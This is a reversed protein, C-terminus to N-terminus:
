GADDLGDLESLAIPAWTTGGAGAGVDEATVGGEEAPSPSPEIGAAALRPWLPALAAAPDAEFDSQRIRWFPWGARRLQRERAFDHAVQEPTGADEGDCEVALRARGGTVVLDIRRGNVEVQPLVRYGALTLERFVRQEFLSDFRPHAIDPAVEALRPPTALEPLEHGRALVYSLYSHRLDAPDLQDLEVSHFLWVQDRARSAAVNFRRQYEQRRLPTAAAQPTVVMSLFVVDREDGQFDPPTGVRLRRRHQEAVSMRAALLSRLLEAQGSGQLVVVGFSRGEYAPDAACALVQSVLAEAEAPNRLDAGEGTTYAHPVYRARLPPLRETGFQRLPILPADRYFMASSWEIIEPMCRFHERLRVVEGFRTRLLSFLSTRPTFAVRLWGPVDPLLADLRRFVGSLDDAEADDDEPGLLSRGPRDIGGTLDTGGTLDALTRLNALEALEAASVEDAAAVAERPAPSDAPAAPEPIAPTCQRDDGVIIVRPALWLLFLSDLGAQSGEDVIVVDFSDRVPPITSLVDAIPMVWAPVATQAVAMAERAAQRYREAHRGSARGGAAVADAYARLAASERTGMRELCHRWARAGALEATAALVADEAADLQADLDGSPGGAGATGPAADTDAAQQRELWGTALGWSWAQPFRSLRARWAADASAAGDPSAAARRAAAVLADALVPHARRLRDLLEARRVAAQRDALTRVLERRAQRYADVDRDALTGALRRLEAPAPTGPASAAASLQARLREVDGRAAAAVRRLRALGLANVLEGLAATSSLDLDLDGGLAGPRFGGVAARVRDRAALVGGVTRLAETAEALRALRHEPAAGPEALRVGALAWASAAAELAVEARLRTLVLDLLQPTTPAQGDVTASTLLEQAARQAKPRFTRRLGGGAALHDRLAEGAALLRAAPSSAAPAPEDAEPETPPLPTPPLTVAHLGLETLAARAQALAQEASAVKAWIAGNRGALADDVARPLWPAQRAARSLAALARRVEEVQGTLRDLRHPDLASLVDAMGSVAELDLAAAGGALSAPETGDSALGALGALATLATRADAAAAREREVLQDVVDPGPVTVSLGALVDEAAEDDGLGDPGGDDPRDGDAQGGAAASRLLSWLTVAERATLPAPPPPAPRGPARGGARPGTPNLCCA